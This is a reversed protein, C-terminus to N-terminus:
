KQSAMKLKKKNLTEQDIVRGKNIDEDSMSLMIKQEEKLLITSDTASKM